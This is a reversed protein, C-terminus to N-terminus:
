MSRIKLYRRLEPLSGVALAGISGIVALGVLKAIM